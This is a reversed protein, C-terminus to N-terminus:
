EDGGIIAALEMIAEAQSEIDETNAQIKEATAEQVAEVIESTATNPLKAELYQWYTLTEGSMTDEVTIQEIDKRIFTHTEGVEVESPRNPQSGQVIKWEM